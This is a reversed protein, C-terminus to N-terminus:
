YMKRRIKLLKLNTWNQDLKNGIQCVQNLKTNSHDVKRKVPKLQSRSRNMVILNDSPAMANKWQQAM